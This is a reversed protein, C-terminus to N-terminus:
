SVAYSYIASHDLTVSRPRSTRGLATSPRAPTGAGLYRSMSHQFTEVRGDIEAHSKDTGAKKDWHLFPRDIAKSKVLAAVAQFAM